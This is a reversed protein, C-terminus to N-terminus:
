GKLAPLGVRVELHGTTCFQNIAKAYVDIFDDPRTQCIESVQDLFGVLCQVEADTSEVKASIDVQAM